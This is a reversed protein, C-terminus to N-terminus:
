SGTAFPFTCAINCGGCNASDKTFDFGDDVIGNCDNDIGDCAEVGANTKVCECGNSKTQPQDLDHDADYFDSFCTSKCVGNMCLPDANPRLCSNFCTGCNSIDNLRDPSNPNCAAVAGGSGAMGGASGGRGGSGGSGARGGAGAPGGSGGGPFIIGDPRGSDLVSGDPPVVQVGFDYYRDKCGALGGLVLATTLLALSTSILSSFRGIRSM